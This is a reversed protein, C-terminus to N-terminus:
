RQNGPDGDPCQAARGPPAPAPISRATPRGRRPPPCTARTGRPPRSCGCPPAPIAAPAPTAPPIPAAAAPPPAPPHPQAVHDAHLVGPQPLPPGLAEPTHHEELRRLAVHADAFRGPPARFPGAAPRRPQQVDHLLAEHAVGQLLVDDLPGGF